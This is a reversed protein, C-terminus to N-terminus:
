HHPLLGYLERVVFDHRLRKGRNEGAAVETVLNNEYVVVYALTSHVATSIRARVRPQGDGTDVSMSIQAGPTKGVAIRRGPDDGFM